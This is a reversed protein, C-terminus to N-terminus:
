RLLSYPMSFWTTGHGDSQKRYQYSKTKLDEWRDTVLAHEMAFDMNNKTWPLNVYIKFLRSINQYNIGVWLLLCQLSKSFQNHHKQHLNSTKLLFSDIEKDIWKPCCTWLKGPKSKKWSKKLAKKWESWNCTKEEETKQQKQNKKHDVDVM